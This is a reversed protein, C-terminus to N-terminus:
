QILTPAFFICRQIYRSYIKSYISTYVALKTRLSFESSLTSEEMELMPLIRENHPEMYMANTHFNMTNKNVHEIINNFQARICEYVCARVYAYTRFSLPSDSIRFLFLYCKTILAIIM